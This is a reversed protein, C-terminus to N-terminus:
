AVQDRTAVRAANVAEKATVAGALDVGTINALHVLYLQVDALEEAVDESDWEGHRQIGALRRVARALEGMEETMLLMTDQVSEESWGRRKATRDYYHQLGRLGDGPALLDQAIAIASPDTVVNVWSQFTTEGLIRDTFVPIGMAKAHGLEFMASPGVYGDPAHLWVFDAEALANLHNQEVTAAALSVEHPLRVFDAEPDVFDLGLPSLVAFRETLATYATRLAEPDKRFSGCIM